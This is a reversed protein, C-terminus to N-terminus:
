VFLLHNWNSCWVIMHCCDNNIIDLHHYTKKEETFLFLHISKIEFFYETLSKLQWYMQMQNFEYKTKDFLNDCYIVHQTIRYQNCQIKRDESKDQEYSFITKDINSILVCREIFLIGKWRFTNLLIGRIETCKKLSINEKKARSIM